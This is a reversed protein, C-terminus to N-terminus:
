DCCSDRWGCSPCRHHAHEPILAGDCLPCADFVAYRSRACASPGATAFPLELQSWTVTM